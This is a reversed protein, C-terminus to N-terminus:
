KKATLIEEKALKAWGDGPFRDLLKMAFERARDKDGLEEYSKATRYLVEPIRKYDPFDRILGEFRGIAARYSGKKFYFLGVLYEYDAILNKCKKIRLEAAERYPNRPYRELLKQFEKLARRAGGAGKDPGEIQKYYIMAIQYQAFPAQTHEPYLRLFRRYEEVATDYDEEKVYSEALKLQAIPAYQRTVDRNKVEFLLRRAEEFDEDEILKSARSLYEKADFQEPRVQKNSSCASFLLLGILYLAITLHRRKM